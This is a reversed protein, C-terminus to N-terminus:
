ILRTVTVNACFAVLRLASRLAKGSADFFDSQSLIGAEHNVPRSGNKRRMQQRFMERAEAVWFSRTTLQASASQMRLVGFHEEVALESLRLHGFRWPDGQRDSTAAVVVASLAVKQINRTTQPSLFMTGKPWGRRSCEVEACLRFLDLAVFATMANQARDAIDM